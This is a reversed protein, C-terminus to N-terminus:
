SGSPSPAGPKSSAKKPKKEGAPAKKAGAKAPAKKAPKEKAPTKEKKQPARALKKEAAKSRRATSTHLDLLRPTPYKELRGRLGADKQRKMLGLIADILKARSGFETKVRSLTDHLHLLKRNSVRALGKGDNVRALWLEDSILRELASVLKQKDGFRESVAKLPSTKM